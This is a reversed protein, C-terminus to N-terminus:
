LGVLNIVKGSFKSDDIVSLYRRNYQTIIILDVNLVADYLNDELRNFQKSVNNWILKNTGMLKIPNVNFDHVIIELNQNKLGNLLQVSPSDRLDDTNAKFALGLVAIKSPKYNKIRDVASSIQIQNSELINSIVPVNLGRSIALYNLSRLDKPLCSGGFAFGPRLYTAAINQRSDLTLLKMVSKSDIEYSESIRSVENAFVIKLAHWANEVTKLMEAVETTVVFTRDALEPRLKGFFQGDEFKETGIIFRTPNSYDNIASGERLFEPIFGLIYRDKDIGRENFVGGFLTKTTGPPVTSCIGILLRDSRKELHQAIQHAVRTIAELNPSNEQENSPTGVCVLIIEADTLGKELSTTASLNGSRIGKLVLEQLGPEYIPSVGDLLSSVKMEDSDIIRVEHGSEALCAGTVAGVYGLGFISVKV